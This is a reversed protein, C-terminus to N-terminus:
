QKAKKPRRWKLTVIGQPIVLLTFVMILLPIAPQYPQVDPGYGNVLGSVFIDTSFGTAIEVFMYVGIVLLIFSLVGQGSLILRRDLPGKWTAGARAKAVGAKWRFLLVALMVSLLGIAAAGYYGLGQGLGTTVFDSSAGIVLGGLVAGFISTLGGLVSAAFIDVILDSGTNTGGPLWLTYLAGAVGAFGGALMWSVVNVREVNIGLIRALSSNEVSARMAIGFKTRTFLLYISLTIAALVIPAVFFLGQIGFVSFDGPLADPLQKPYSYPYLAQMYDTYIGIIGIFGIDVAFTAIMLAVLPTGRRALPRLIGIYMLVSILGAVVFAVISSYYPNIRYVTSFHYATYLGITVFSGYAFNPVKTTMYTLTLGMAMLAFLTGYLVGYILFAPVM